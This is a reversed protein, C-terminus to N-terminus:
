NGNMNFVANGALVQLVKKGRLRLIIRRGASLSVNWQEEELFLQKSLSGSDEM